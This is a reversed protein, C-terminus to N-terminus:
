LGAYISIRTDPFRLDGNLVSVPKLLKSRLTVDEPHICSAITYEQLGIVVNRPAQFKRRTLLWLNIWIFQNGFSEVLLIM